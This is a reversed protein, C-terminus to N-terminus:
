VKLLWHKMFSERSPTVILVQMRSYKLLIGRTIRVLWGKGRYFLIVWLRMFPDKTESEKTLFYFESKVFLSRRPMRRPSLRVKRVKLSGKTDKDSIEPFKNGYHGIERCKYFEVDKLDYKSGFTGSKKYPSFTAGVKSNAETKKPFTAVSKPYDRKDKGFVKKPESKEDRDSIELIDRYTSLEKRAERIVDNLNEFTRSYMEERFIDPKM